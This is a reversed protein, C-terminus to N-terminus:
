LSTQMSDANNDVPGKVKQRLDLPDFSTYIQVCIFSSTKTLM